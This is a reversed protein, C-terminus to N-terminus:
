VERIADMVEPLSSADVKKTKSDCWDLVQERTWVTLRPTIQQPEPFTKNRVMKWITSQGMSLIESLDKVRLWEKNGLISSGRAENEM